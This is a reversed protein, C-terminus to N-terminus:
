DFRRLRVVARGALPADGPHVVVTGPDVVTHAVVVLLV